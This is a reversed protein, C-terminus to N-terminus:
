NLWAAIASEVKQRKEDTKNTAFKVLEDEEVCYLNTLQSKIEEKRTLSYPTSQCKLIKQIQEDFLVMKQFNILNNGIYDPNGDNIFTLDRLSIALYPLTPPTTDLNRYSKFNGSPSMLNELKKLSSVDSSPLKKMAQLRQVATFNLGSLMEFTGHYNRLQQMKQAVKIFKSILKTQNKSNEEKLITTAVWRGTQNFRQVIERLNPAKEQEEMKWAGYLFEPPQINAFLEAEILTLHTAITSSSLNLLDLSRPSVPPHTEPKIIMSERDSDRQKKLILLKFSDGGELKTDVFKLLQNFLPKKEFDVKYWLELWVRLLNKFKPRTRESCFASCEWTSIAPTSQTCRVPNSSSHPRVEPASSLVLSPISPQDASADAEQQQTSDQDDGTTSLLLKVKTALSSRRQQKEETSPPAVSSDIHGNSLAQTVHEATTDAIEERTSGTTDKPKGEEVEVPKNSEPSTLVNSGGVHSTTKSAISESCCEDSLSELSATSESSAVGESKRPPRPPPIPREVSRKLESFAEAVLEIGAAAERLSRLEPTDANRPSDINRPTVSPSSEPTTVPSFKVVRDEEELSQEPLDEADNVQSLGSSSLKRKPPSSKKRTSRIVVERSAGSAGSLQQQLKSQGLAENLRLSTRKKSRYVHPENSPPTSESRTRSYANRPSLRGEDKVELNYKAHIQQLTELLQDSTAYTRYNLLFARLSKNEKLTHSTCNQLVLWEILQPFAAALVQPEDPNDTSLIVNGAASEAQLFNEADVDIFEEM